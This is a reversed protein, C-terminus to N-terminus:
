STLYRSLMEEIKAKTLPKVCYDDMGSDLAANIDSIQVLATCAIIPIDPLEGDDMKRRLISAAEFGDMIPMTCDMFIMQYFTCSDGCKSDIRAQVQQIAEQGNFTYDFTKQLSNLITEIAMINFSDDDVVLLSPCSCPHSDNIAGISPIGAETSNMLSRHPVLIPLQVNLTPPKLSSTRHPSYEARMAQSYKVTDRVTLRGYEDPINSIMTEESREIQSCKFMTKRASNETARHCRENFQLAPPNSTRSGNQFYQSASSVSGRRLAELEGRTKMRSILSKEELVFWFKSGEGKVSSVDLGIAEGKPGLRKALSDAIMLGLGVGSPNMTSRSENEIHTFAKFLKAQDDKSMGIGSDQVEIKIRKRENMPVAILEEIAVKIWGKSTFKVANSLLNLLIQKFRTHDTIFTFDRPIHIQTILEIKKRQAQLEVLSMSETVTQDINKPEFNLRLKNAQIQSMDLIDNIISLLLLNSRLAPVLFKKKVEDEVGDHGVSYEILNISGNLPTRLEHSVSALLRSKYCDRDQLRHLQKVHSTESFLMTISPQGQFQTFWLKIQFAKEKDTRPSVVADLPFVHKDEEFAGAAPVDSKLSQRWHTIIEELFVHLNKSQFFDTVKENKLKNEEDNNQDSSKLRENEFNSFSNIM